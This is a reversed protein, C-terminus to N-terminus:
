HSHLSPMFNTSKIIRQDKEGNHFEEERVLYSAKSVFHLDTFSSSDVSTTWKHQRDAGNRKKIVDRNRMSHSLNHKGEEESEMMETEDEIMQM